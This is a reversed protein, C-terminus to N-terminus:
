KSLFGHGDIVFDFRLNGLKKGGFVEYYLVLLDRCRAKVHM